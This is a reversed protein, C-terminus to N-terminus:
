ALPSTGAAVLPKFPNRCNSVYPVRPKSAIILLDTELLAMDAEWNVQSSDTKYKGLEKYTGWVYVDGNADIASFSRNVLEVFPISVKNHFM